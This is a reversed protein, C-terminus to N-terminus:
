QRLCATEARFTSCLPLIPKAKAILTLPGPWFRNGLAEFVTKEQESLVVLDLAAKMSTVHVILPDACATPV